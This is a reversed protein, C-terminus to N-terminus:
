RVRDNNSSGSIYGMPIIGDTCYLRKERGPEKSSVLGLSLTTQIPYRAKNVVFVLLQTSGSPVNDFLLPELGNAELINDMELGRTSDLRIFNTREQGLAICIPPSDPFRWYEANGHPEHKAGISLLGSSVERVLGGYLLFSKTQQCMAPLLSHDIINSLAAKGLVEIIAQANNPEYPQLLGSSDAADHVWEFTM